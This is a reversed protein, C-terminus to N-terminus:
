IKTRFFVRARKWDEETDQLENLAISILKKEAKTTTKAEKKLLLIKFSM